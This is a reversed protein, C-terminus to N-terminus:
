ERIVLLVLKGARLLEMRNPVRQFQGPDNLTYVSKSKDEAQALTAHLTVYNEGLKGLNKLARSESTSFFPALPGRTPCDTSKFIAEGSPGVVDWVPTSTLAKDSPFIARLLFGSVAGGGGGGAGGGTEEYGYEDGGCALLLFVLMSLTFCRKGM